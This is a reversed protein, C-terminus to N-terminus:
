RLIVLALAPIIFFLFIALKLVLMGTYQIRDFDQRTIQFYRSHLRYVWNGALRLMVFWYTLLGLGLVASWVLFMRLADLNISYSM